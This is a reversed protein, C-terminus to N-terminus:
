IYYGCRRGFLQERQSYPLLEGLNDHSNPGLCQRASFSPLQSQGVPPRADARRSVLGAEVMDDTSGLIPITTTARQAARIAHDGTAFIVDVHSKVLETMIEPILDIHSGYEHWDVILNQGEVFGM